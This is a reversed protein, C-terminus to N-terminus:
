ASVHLIDGIAYVGEVSSQETDGGYGGMIKHTEPHLEVGLSELGM